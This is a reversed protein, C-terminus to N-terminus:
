VHYQAIKVRYKVGFKENKGRALKSLKDKNRRIKETKTEAGYFGSLFTLREEATEFGCLDEGYDKLLDESCSNYVFNAALRNFQARLDSENSSEHSELSKDFIWKARQIKDEIATKVFNFEFNKMSERPRIM